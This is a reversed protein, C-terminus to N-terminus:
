VLYRFELWRTVFCISGVSLDFVHRQISEYFIFSYHVVEEFKPVVMPVWTGLMRVLSAHNEADNFGSGFSYQCSFEATPTFLLTLAM